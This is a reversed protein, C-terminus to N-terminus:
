RFVGVSREISKARESVLSDFWHGDSEYETFQGGRAEKAVDNWGTDPDDGPDVPGDNTPKFASLGSPNSMTSCGATLALLFLATIALSLSRM